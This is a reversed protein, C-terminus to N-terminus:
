THSTERQKVKRKENERAFYLTESMLTQGYADDNAEIALM